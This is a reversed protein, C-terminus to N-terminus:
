HGSILGIRTPRMREGVYGQSSGTVSSKRARSLASQGSEGNPELVDIVRREIRFRMPPAPRAEVAPTPNRESM